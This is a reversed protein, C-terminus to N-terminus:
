FIINDTSAQLWIIKIAFMMSTVDNKDIIIQPSSVSQEYVYLIYFVIKLVVVYVMASSWKTIFSSGILVKIINIRRWITVYLLSSM